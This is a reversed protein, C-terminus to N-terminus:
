SLRNQRLQNLSIAAILDNGALRLMVVGGSGTGGSMVSGMASNSVINGGTNPQFWEPGREGVMYGMGARVPGGQARAGAFNKFLQGAAIALVGLGIAVGGPIAIGGPGLIQDLGKKIVGYKILAKGIEQLL